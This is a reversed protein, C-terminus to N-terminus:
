MPTLARWGLGGLGAWAPGTTRGTPLVAHTMALGTLFRKITQEPGQLCAPVFLTVAM